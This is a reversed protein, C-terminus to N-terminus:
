EIVAKFEDYIEQCKLTVFDTVEDSMDEYGLAACVSNVVCRMKKVGTGAPFVSELIRMAMRIENKNETIFKTIKNEVKAVLQKTRKFIQIIYKFFKM